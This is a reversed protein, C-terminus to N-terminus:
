AASAKEADLWALHEPSGPTVYATEEGDGYDITGCAVVLTPVAAPDKPVFLVWAGDEPEISAFWAFSGDACRAGPIEADEVTYRSVKISRKM